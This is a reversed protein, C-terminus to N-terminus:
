CLYGQCGISLPSSGHKIRERSFTTGWFTADKEFAAGDFSANQVTSNILSFSTSIEAPKLGSLDLDGSVIVNRYAVPQDNQIKAIIEDAPVTRQDPSSSAGATAIVLIALM